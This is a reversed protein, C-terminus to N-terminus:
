ISTENKWNDNNASNANESMITENKVTWFINVSFDTKKKCKETVIREFDIKLFIVYYYVKNFNSQQHARKSVQKALKLKQTFKCLIILEVRQLNVSESMIDALDILINSQDNQKFDEAFDKELM